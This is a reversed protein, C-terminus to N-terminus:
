DTEEANETEEWDYFEWDKKYAASYVETYLVGVETPKSFDAKRGYERICFDDIADRLKQNIM